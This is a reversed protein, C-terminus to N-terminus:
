IVISSPPVCPGAYIFLNGVFLTPPMNTFSQGDGTSNTTFTHTHLGNTSTTFSHTHNGNSNISIGTTNSNISLAFPVTWVNLEGSSSDTDTVTNTGNATVLGLGGQGGNANSTHAHGPDTIAHTHLGDTATTGNHNHSGDSDTTGTHVHAPLENVTLTTEEEGTTDGIARTTLGFGSGATGLLRSAPYPLNFTTSGGGFKTGIINFLEAYTERSIARGDCLLWGEYDDTRASYIMSGIYFRRFRLFEYQLRNLAASCSPDM